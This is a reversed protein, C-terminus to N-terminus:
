HCQEVHEIFLCELDAVCFLGHLVNHLFVFFCIVTLIEYFFTTINLIHHIFIMVIISMWSNSEMM